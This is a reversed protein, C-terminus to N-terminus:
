KIRELVIGKVYRPNFSVSGLTHNHTINESKTSSQRFGLHTHNYSVFKTGGSATIGEKIDSGYNSTASQFDVTHDHGEITENNVSHTHIQSFYDIIGTIQGGDSNVLNVVYDIIPVINWYPRGNEPMSIFLVKTGLPIEDRWSVINGNYDRYKLEGDYFIRNNRDINKKISHVLRPNNNDTLFYHDEQFITELDQKLERIRDDGYSVVESGAPKSIDWVM